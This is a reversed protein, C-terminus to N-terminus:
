RRTQRNYKKINKKSISEYAEEASLSDFTSTIELFKPVRSGHKFL